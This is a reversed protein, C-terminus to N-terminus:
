GEPILVPQGKDSILLALLKASATKSASRVIRHIHMPPEYWMQGQTYTVIPGPEVQTTISGELVYAFVSGPHRHAKDDVGPPFEVIVVTVVKGDMEPLAQELLKTVRIGNAPPPQAKVAAGEEGVKEALALGAVLNSALITSSAALAKM